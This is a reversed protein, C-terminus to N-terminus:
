ALPYAEAMAEGAKSVHFYPPPSPHEGAVGADALLDDVSSGDFRGKEPEILEWSVPAVLTNMHLRQFDAWHPKLAALDSATSNGLEGGLILFPRDDVILQKTTGQPALHPPAAAVIMLSALSLLVCRM